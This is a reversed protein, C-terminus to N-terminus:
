STLKPLYVQQLFRPCDFYENDNMKLAHRSSPGEHNAGSVIPAYFQYGDSDRLNDFVVSSSDPDLLEWRAMSEFSEGVINSIMKPDIIDVNAMGNAVAQKLRSVLVAKVGNKGLNQAGLADNIDSVKM